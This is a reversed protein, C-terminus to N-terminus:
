GDNEALTGLLRRLAVCEPSGAGNNLFTSIDIHTTAGGSSQNARHTVFAQGEDDRDLFWRDGNSSAYFERLPRAISAEKFGGAKISTVIGQKHTLDSRLDEVARAQREANTILGDIVDILAVHTRKADDAARAGELIERLESFSQTARSNTM